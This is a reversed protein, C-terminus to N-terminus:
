GDDSEESRDIMVQKGLVAPVAKKLVAQDSSEFSLKSDEPLESWFWRGYYQAEMRTKLEQHIAVGSPKHSLTWTQSSGDTKHTCLIGNTDLVDTCGDVTIKGSLTQMEFKAM